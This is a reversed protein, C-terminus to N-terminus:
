EIYKYDPKEFYWVPNELIEFGADLLLQKGDSGDKALLTHDSVEDMGSIVLQSKMDPIYGNALFYDKPSISWEGFDDDKHKLAVWGIIPKIATGTDLERNLDSALGAELQTDKETM